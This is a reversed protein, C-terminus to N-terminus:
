LEQIEESGDYDRYLFTACMVVYYMCCHCAPPFINGPDLNFEECSESSKSGYKCVKASGYASEMEAGIKTQQM